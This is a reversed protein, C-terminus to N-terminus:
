RGLFVVGPELKLVPRASILASTISVVIVGLLAFLPAFWMMRFPYDTIASISEGIIACLGIGIGSGVLIGITAQTFIMHILTSQSAGMVKLIAYQKLNEYTFMYLMVGTIGFGVIIALILMSVMDGVDESNVLFWFITEKKFQTATIAKLRTEKEIRKALTEASIGKQASVMIFTVRKHQSPTLRKFNSYTTYLLPRPPFRPITQSVGVVVVRKDDVLLEDGFALRRTPVNLHSGDYPWIDRKNIPTQLKDTTGGSDVIVSEPIHLVDVGMGNKPKPAGSLTASEVGIMQFTQFNGNAFRVKIDSLCLPVAYSVGDVSRVVGLASDPMDITMETSNVASDMVWVDASPNESILAFGRTMFGAFYSLAFTILFATFTIGILLGMYKTRDGMLMLIAIRFM